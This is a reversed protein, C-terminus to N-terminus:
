ANFTRLAIREDHLDIVALDLIMVTCHGFAIGDLEFCLDHLPFFRYMNGIGNDEGRHVNSQM